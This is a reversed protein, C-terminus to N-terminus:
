SCPYQCLTSCCLLNSWIIRLVTVKKYACCLLTPDKEPAKADSKAGRMRKDKKAAGQFSAIRLFRLGSEKTGLVRSVRHDPLNIVKIGLLTPVLLFNGSEDFACNQSPFDQSRLLERENAMRRGFEVEDLQFSEGGTRQVEQAAQPSEDFVCKLKCTKTRFVRIKCDSSRVAMLEGSPSVEISWPRAKEKALAFLDTELKYEFALRDLPFTFDDERKSSWVEAIGSSDFSFVTSLQNCHRMAVVSSKHLDLTALPTKDGLAADFIRIAGSNADAIALKQESEGSSFIFECCSPKFDLRLMLVMDFNLVDFVKASSDAGVTAAWLGDASVTLSEVQGSHARLLSFLFFCFM